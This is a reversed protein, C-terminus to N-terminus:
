AFINMAIEASKDDLEDYSTIYRQEEGKKPLKIGKCEPNSCVMINGGIYTMPQGCARCKHHSCFKERQSELKKKDKTQKKIAKLGFAKRLEELSSYHANSQSDLRYTNM